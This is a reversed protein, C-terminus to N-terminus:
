HNGTFLYFLIFIDKHTQCSVYAQPKKPQQEGYYNEHASIFFQSIGMTLLNIALLTREQAPDEKDYWINTLLANCADEYLFKKDDAAIAMQLCTVEGYLDVRRMILECAQDHDYFYSCRICEIAYTEFDNAESCIKDNSDHDPAYKAISKLIKSAILASCLRTKMQGLFIRAMELRHTLVCWLFLDRYIYESASKNEIIEPAVQHTASSSSHQYIPKM